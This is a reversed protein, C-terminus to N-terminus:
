LEGKLSKRLSILTELSAWGDSLSQIKESKFKRYDDSMVDIRKTGNSAYVSIMGDDRRTAVLPFGQAIWGCDNSLLYSFNVENAKTVELVIQACVNEDNLDVM